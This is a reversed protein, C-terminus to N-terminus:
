QTINLVEEQKDIKTENKFDIDIISMFFIM